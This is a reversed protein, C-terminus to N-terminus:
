VQLSNHGCLCFDLKICYLFQQHHFTLLLKDTAIFPLNCNSLQFFDIQKGISM